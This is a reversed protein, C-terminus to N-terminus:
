LTRVLDRGQGAHGKLARLFFRNVKCMQVLDMAFTFHTYLSWPKYPSAVGALNIRDCTYHNQLGNLSTSRGKFKM